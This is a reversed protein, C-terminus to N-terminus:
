LPRPANTPDYAYTVTVSNRDPAWEILESRYRERLAEEVGSAFESAAADQSARGSLCVEELRQWTPETM